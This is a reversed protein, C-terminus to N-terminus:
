FPPEESTPADDGSQRKANKVPEATAWRLSTGIEDVVVELKRVEKGANPGQTPTYTRTVFRGVVVVRDGEKLSEAVNEAQGGWISGEIFSTTGDDYTKTTPNYRRPTVAVSISAVPQGSQTFRLEPDRTLNGAFNAPIENM